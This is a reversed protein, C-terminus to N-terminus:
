LALPSFTAELGQLLRERDATIDGQGPAPLELYIKQSFANM